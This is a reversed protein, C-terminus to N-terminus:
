LKNVKQYIGSQVFKPEKGYKNDKKYYRDMIYCGLNMIKYTGGLKQSLVSKGARLDLPLSNKVNRFDKTKLMFFAVPRKTPIEGYKLVDDKYKLEKIVSPTLLRSMGYRRIQVIKHNTNELFYIMKDIWEEDKIECDNDMQVIYDSDESILDLSKMMGGWDGYNEKMNFPRLKQYYPSNNGKIWNLWETTGDNSNNNIIIHEYNDYKTNMIVSEICKITYELRNYCRTVISVKKM